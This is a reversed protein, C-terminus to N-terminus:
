LSKFVFYTISYAAVVIILGIIARKITDKAENVKEEEGGATMWKQGAVILLIIFIVGLLGLFGTIVKSIVTAVGTEGGQTAVDYGSGQLFASEQKGMEGIANGSLVGQGYCSNSLFVIFFLIPIISYKILRKFMEKAM